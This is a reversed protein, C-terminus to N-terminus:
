IAEQQCNQWKRPDNIVKNLNVLKFPRNVTHRALGYSDPYLISDHAPHAQSYFAAYELGTDEVIMAATAVAAFPLRHRFAFPSIKPLTVKHVGIDRGNSYYDVENCAAGIADIRSQYGFRDDESGAKLKGIQRAIRGYCDVIGFTEEKGRGQSENEPHAAQICQCALFPEANRPFILSFGLWGTNSFVSTRDTLGPDIDSFKGFIEPQDWDQVVAIKPDHKTPKLIFGFNLLKDIYYAYHQIELVEPKALTPQENVSEMSIEDPFDWPVDEKGRWSRQTPVGYREVIERAVIPRSSIREVASKVRDVADVEGLPWNESPAFKDVRFAERKIRSRTM